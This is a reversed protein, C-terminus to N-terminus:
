LNSLLKLNSLLPLKNIRVVRRKLIGFYVEQSELSIIIFRYGRVEFEEQKRFAEKVVKSDIKNKWDINFIEIVRVIQKYEREEERRMRIFKYAAKYIVKRLERKGEAEINTFYKLNNIIM